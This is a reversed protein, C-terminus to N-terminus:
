ALVTAVCMALDVLREKLQADRSIQIVEREADRVSVTVCGIAEGSKPNQVVLAMVQGYIRSLKRAEDLALNHTVEIGYDEWQHKSRARLTGRYMPNSADITLFKARDNHAVCTGILGKGKYFRVGSPTPKILGVAAVCRFTPRIAWNRIVRKLRKRLAYPFVKRYWLPVEWVHLSLGLLEPSVLRNECINILTQEAFAEVCDKRLTKSASIWKQVGSIRQLVAAFILVVAAAIHSLNVAPTLSGSVSVLAAWAVVLNAAMISIRMKSDERACPHLLRM